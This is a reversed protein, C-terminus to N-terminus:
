KRQWVSLDGYSFLRFNREIAWQYCAKVAELSSFGSVLALLTSQPQHFNTMLVDIVQWHYGPQVLLKTFGSFDGSPSKQLLGLAASELARTATTGLSWIQQGSEKAAGICAWTAAPIEVYEEHMEHQDLDDATVPLFTGLGVHLTLEVIEVGKNKLFALDQEKFHLSATPAAFSGANKAWVTQYWSEDAQVTHRAARAKQIYPPLPLEGYTQFYDESLKQNLTVRQPRGKQSLTMLLGAPLEVSEGLKYKKSPFLVEWELDSIQKLFLIELDGAFIRRKLVKTNNVVLVDGAPISELLESFTMEEPTADVVANRVCMVRSPYRPETAVLAEPYSFDLDTLKM